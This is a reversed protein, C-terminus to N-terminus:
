TIGADTFNTCALAVVNDLKNRNEEWTKAKQEVQKITKKMKSITKNTAKEQKISAGERVKMKMVAVNHIAYVEYLSMQSFDIAM